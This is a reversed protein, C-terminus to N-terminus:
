RSVNQRYRMLLWNLVSQTDDIDYHTVNPLNFVPSTEVNFQEQSGPVADGDLQLLDQGWPEDSMQYLNLHWNSGIPRRTEALNSSDSVADVYATFVLSYAGINGATRQGSLYNSLNYTSGGGQSYGYISIDVISQSNVANELTDYVPGPGPPGFGFGAAVDQEDFKYVNYGERYLDDATSFIGHNPDTPVSPVQNLGGLVTTISTFSHFLISDLTTATTVDVFNLIGTAGAPGIWEAYVTETGSSLDAYSPANVGPSIPVPQGKDADSWLRLSPSNTTFVFRSASAVSVRVDLEILDNENAVTGADNFDATGNNNDDDGNVRIGPGLEANMERGDPVVTKTFPFYGGTTFMPRYATLNGTTLAPGGGGGGGGTTTDILGADVDTRSEGQNLFLTYWAADSDQLRNSGVHQATFVYGVPARFSVAYDDSPLDDFEYNGGADTLMDEVFFWDSGTWRFLTVLVEDVGQEGQSQLGDGNADM